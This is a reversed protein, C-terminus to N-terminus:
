CSGEAAVKKQYAKQVEEYETWIKGAVEKDCGMYTIAPTVPLMHIGM